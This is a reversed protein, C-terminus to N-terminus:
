GADRQPAIETRGFQCHLDFPIEIAHESAMHIAFREFSSHEIEYIQRFQWDTVKLVLSDM